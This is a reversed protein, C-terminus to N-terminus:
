SSPAVSPASGGITLFWIAFIVLGLGVSVLFVRDIAGRDQKYGAARRALKWLYDVRKAIAVTVMLSVLSGVMAVAIGITPEDFLYQVQSGIWLWAMPQPGLISLCLLLEIPLLANALGNDFRSRRGLLNEPSPRFYRIPGGRRDNFLGGSEVPDTIPM